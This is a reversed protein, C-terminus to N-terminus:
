KFIGCDRGLDIFIYSLVVLCLMGCNKILLNLWVIFLVPELAGLSQMTSAGPHSSRVNSEWCLHGISEFTMLNNCVCECAM